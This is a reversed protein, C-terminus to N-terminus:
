RAPRKSATRSEQHRRWDLAHLRYLVFRRRAHGPPYWPADFDDRLDHSMGLRRMVARSRENTATTHAVVEDLHLQEFAYELAACAGETAYGHGWAARALTWGIDVAPCFPADFESTAFGTFGLFRRDGRREVVWLGFGREDFTAETEDILADSQRRSLPALRYRMVLPDASIKAFPERDNDTWRRLLLRETQLTPPKLHVNENV